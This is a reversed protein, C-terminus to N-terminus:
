RRGRGRWSWAQDLREADHQAEVVLADLARGVQHRGVDQAGFHQLFAVGAPAGEAEDGPRDERWSSIASSILRALGRVCDASSCAICSRGRRPRRGTGDAAADTGRAPSGSGAPAPPSMDAARPGARGSGAASRHRSDRGRRRAASASRSWRRQRPAASATSMGAVLQQRRLAQDAAHRDALAHDVGDQLQHAGAPRLVVSM